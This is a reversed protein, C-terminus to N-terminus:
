SPDQFRPDAACAAAGLLGVRPNLIVAVPIREMLPAHLWKDRFAALFTGDRLAPLIRPAIGGALYVGGLALM